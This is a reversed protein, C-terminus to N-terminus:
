NSFSTTRKLEGDASLYHIGFNSIVTLGGQSENELGGGIIQTVRGISPSKCFVRKTFKADNIVIKPDLLKLQAANDRQFREEVRHVYYFGIGIIAVILVAIGLLVKRWM